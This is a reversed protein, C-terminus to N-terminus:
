GRILFLLLTGPIMLLFSIGVNASFSGSKSSATKAGDETPASSDTGFATVATCTESDFDVCTEDSISAFSCLLKDDITGFVNDAIFGEASGDVVVVGKGACINNTFCSDSITVM